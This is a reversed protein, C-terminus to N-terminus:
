LLCILMSAETHLIQLPYIGSTAKEIEKGISDPIFKCVLEKLDCSSAQNIMIERM